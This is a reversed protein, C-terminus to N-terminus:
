IWHPDTDAVNAEEEVGVARLQNRVAGPHSLPRGHQQQMWARAEVVADELNLEARPERRPALDHIEVLAAAAPTVEPARLVQPEVPPGVVHPLEAVREPDFPRDHEPETEAGDDSQVIRRAMGVM